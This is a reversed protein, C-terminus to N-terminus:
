CFIKDGLLIVGDGDGDGVGDDGVCVFFQQHEDKWGDERGKEWGEKRELEENSMWTLLKMPM